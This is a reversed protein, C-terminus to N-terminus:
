NSVAHLWINGWWKDMVTMVSRFGREFMVWEKETNIELDAMELLRDRHGVEIDNIHWDFFDMMLSSCQLSREELASVVISKVLSLEPVASSELAYVAGCVIEPSSSSLINKINEVFEATEKTPNVSNIDVNFSDKFIKRLIIYHPLSFKEIQGNGLGMEENINQILEKVVHAWSDNSLSYAAAVLMSIINKPFISYQGLISLKQDYSLSQLEKTIPNRYENVSVFDEILATNLKNSIIKSNM